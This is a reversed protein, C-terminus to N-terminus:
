IKNEKSSMRYRPVNLLSADPIMDVHYQINCIPPLKALLDEHIM